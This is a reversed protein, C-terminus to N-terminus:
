TKLRGKPILEYLEGLVEGVISNAKLAREIENRLRDRAWPRSEKAYAIESDFLSTDKLTRYSNNLHFISDTVNTAQNVLKDILVKEDVGLILSPQNSHIKV